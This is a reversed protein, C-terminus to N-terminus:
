RLCGQSGSAHAFVGRFVRLGQEAVRSNGAHPGTCDRRGCAGRTSTHIRCGVTLNGPCQLLDVPELGLAARVQPGSGEEASLAECVVALVRLTATPVSPAPFCLNANGGLEDLWDNLTGALRVAERSWEVEGERGRLRVTSTTSARKTEGASSSCDVFEMAALVCCNTGALKLNRM